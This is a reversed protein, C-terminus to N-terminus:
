FHAVPPPNGFEHDYPWLKEAPPSAHTPNPNCPPPGYGIRPPPVKTHPRFRPFATILKFGPITQDRGRRWEAVVHIRLKKGLRRRTRSPFSDAGCSMLARPSYVSHSTAPCRNSRSSPFGSLAAERPSIATARTLTCCCIASSASAGTNTFVCLISASSRPWGV